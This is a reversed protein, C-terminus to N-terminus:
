ERQRFEHNGIRILTQRIFFYLAAPLPDGWSHYFVLAHYKTSHDVPCSGDIFVENGGAPHNRSGDTHAPLYAWGSAGHSPIMRLQTNDLGGPEAVLDACLMWGPKSLTTKVPSDSAHGSSAVNNIWLTIGGYYQYGIIWQGGVGGAEFPFGQRDPCCWVSPGAAAQTGISNTIPLGVQKWIDLGVDNPNIQVSYLNQSAPPVYDGNDTAYVLAGTGIQRLNSCAFSANPADRRM